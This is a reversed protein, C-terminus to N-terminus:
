LLLEHGDLGDGGMGMGNGGMDGGSGVFGGRLLVGDASADAHDHGNCGADVAGELAAYDVVTTPPPPPLISPLAPLAYQTDDQAQVAPGGHVSAADGALETPLLAVPAPAELAMPPIRVCARCVGVSVEAPIDPTYWVSLAGVTGLLAAAEPMDTATANRPIVFSFKAVHGACASLSCHLCYVTPSANCGAAACFHRPCHWVADDSDPPQRHAPLCHVHYVKACQAIAGATAGGADAAPRNCDCEVLDGGDCCHFCVDETPLVGDGTDTPAPASQWEGARKHLYQLYATLLGLPARGNVLPVPALLLPTHPPLPPPLPAAAYPLMAALHQHHRAALPRRGGRRGGTSPRFDLGSYDARSRGPRVERVRPQPPLLGGTDITRVTPRRQRGARSQASFMSASTPSHALESGGAGGGGEGGAVGAVGAAGGGAYGHYAAAGRPRAALELRARKAAAPLVVGDDGVEMARQKARQLAQRAQKQRKLLKDELDPRLEWDVDTDMDMDVGLEEDGTSRNGPDSKRKAAGHILRESYAMMAARSAVSCPPCLWDRLSTLLHKQTPSLLHADLCSDCYGRPCRRASCSHIRIGISPAGMDGCLACLRECGDDTDHLQGEQAAHERKRLVAAYCQTLARPYPPTHPVV